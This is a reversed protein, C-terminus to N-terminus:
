EPITELCPNFFSFENVGGLGPQTLVTEQTIGCSYDCWFAFVDTDTSVSVWCEAGADIDRCEDPREIRLANPEPNSFQRTLKKRCAYQEPNVRVPEDEILEAERVATSYTLEDGTDIEDCATVALSIALLIPFQSKM